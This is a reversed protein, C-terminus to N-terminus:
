STTWLTRYHYGYVDRFGLRQYLRAADPNSNEVQLYLGIAGQEVAYGAFAAIIARGLGQNRCGPDTLMGFIGLWNGGYVGLGIATPKGASDTITAFVAQECARAAIASADRDYGKAYFAWWGEPVTTSLGIERKADGLAAIVPAQAIQITVASETVYGREALLQDLGAPSAAPSIQFRPPLGHGRYFAEATAIQRDLSVTDRTFPFPAVSNARRSVGHAFRFLWGEREENHTAPWAAVALRDLALIDNTPLPNSSFVDADPGSLPQGLFSVM